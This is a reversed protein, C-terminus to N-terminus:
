RVEGLLWKNINVFLLCFIYICVKEVKIKKGPPPVGIRDEVKANFEYPDHSTCERKIPTGAGSFSTVSIRNLDVTVNGTVPITPVAGSTATVTVVVPGSSSGSTASAPVVGVTTVHQADAGSNKCKTARDKKSGSRNKGVSASTSGSTSRDKEALTHKLRDVTAQLPAHAACAEAGSAARNDGPRGEVKVAGIAASSVVTSPATLSASSKGNGNRKIKMKLGKNDSDGGTRSASQSM